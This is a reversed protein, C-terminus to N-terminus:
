IEKMLCTLMVSPDMASHGTSGKKTSSVRPLFGRFRDLARDYLAVGENGWFSGVWLRNQSDEYLVGAVSSPLTGPVGPEHRYVKFGAGDYRNLGDQTGFWLFGQSDKLISFRCTM